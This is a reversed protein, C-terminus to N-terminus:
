RKNHKDKRPPYANEKTYTALNDLRKKEKLRKEDLIFKIVALIIPIFSAYTKITELM